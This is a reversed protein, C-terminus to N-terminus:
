PKTGDIPPKPPHGGDFLPVSRPVGATLLPIGLMRSAQPHTSFTRAPDTGHVAARPM